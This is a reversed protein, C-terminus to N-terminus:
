AVSGKRRRTKKAPMEKLVEDRRRNLVCDWFWDVRNLLKSIYEDDRPVDIVNIQNMNNIQVMYIKCAGTVAYQFQIQAKYKDPCIDTFNKGVYKIEIGENKDSNYGDMSCRYHSKEIHVFNAAPYDADELLEFRARAIPELTNGLEIIYNTKEVIEDSTKDDYIDLMTRYPSECMISPCDSAGIGLKRWELWEKRDM